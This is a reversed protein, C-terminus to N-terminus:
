NNIFLLSADFRCNEYIVNKAIWKGDFRIPFFIKGVKIAISFVQLINETYLLQKSITHM